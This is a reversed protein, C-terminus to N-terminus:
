LLKNKQHSYIVIISKKHVIKNIYITTSKDVIPGLNKFIKYDFKLRIEELSSLSM